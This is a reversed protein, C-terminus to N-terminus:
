CYARQHALRGEMEEGDSIEISIHPQQTMFDQLSAGSMMQQRLLFSSPLPEPHTPNPDSGSAM